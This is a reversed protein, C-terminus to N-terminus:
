ALHKLIKVLRPWFDEKRDNRSSKRGPHVTIIGAEITGALRVAKEVHRLSKKKIGDNGSTLNLDRM